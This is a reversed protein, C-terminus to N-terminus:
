SCIRAPSRSVLRFDHSYSSITGKWSVETELYTRTGMKVDMICPESFSSLCCQLELYDAAFLSEVFKSCFCSKGGKDDVTRRGYYRPVVERLCDAM